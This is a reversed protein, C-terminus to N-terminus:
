HEEATTYTCIKAKLRAFRKIPIGCTENKM